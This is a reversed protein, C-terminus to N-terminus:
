LMVKVNSLIAKFFYEMGQQIVSVHSDHSFWCLPKLVPRVCVSSCLCLHHSSAPFNPNLFYFFQVIQTTFVFTSIMKATVSVSLSRLQDTGKNKCICFTPKRMVHSMHVSLKVIASQEYWSLSSNYCYPM